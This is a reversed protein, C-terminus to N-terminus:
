KKPPVQLVQVKGRTPHQTMYSSHYFKHNADGELFNIMPKTEQLQFGIERSGFGKGGTEPNDFRDM